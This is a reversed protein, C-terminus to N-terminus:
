VRPKRSLLLSKRGGEESTIKSCLVMTFGERKLTIDYVIKMRNRILAM